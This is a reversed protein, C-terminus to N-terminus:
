EDEIREDPIPQKTHGNSRICAHGQADMPAGCLPCQPRGAVIIDQLQSNLSACSDEPIRVQVDPEEEDEERSIEFVQLVVAGQGSDYGIAMRGVHFEHDAGEPFTAM